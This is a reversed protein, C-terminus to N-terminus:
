QDDPEEDKSFQRRTLFPNKSEQLNAQYGSSAARNKIGNQVKFYLGDERVETAFYTQDLDFPVTQDIYLFYNENIRYPKQPAPKTDNTTIDKFLRKNVQEM